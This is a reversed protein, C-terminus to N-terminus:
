ISEYYEQDASIQKYYDKVYKSFTFFKTPLVSIRISIM